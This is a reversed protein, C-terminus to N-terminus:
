GLGKPPLGMAHTLIEEAGRGRIVLRMCAIKRHDSRSAALPDPTCRGSGCWESRTGEGRLGCAGEEGWRREVVREAALVLCEPFAACASRPGVHILTRRDGERALGHTAGGPLAHERRRHGATRQGPVTIDTIMEAM